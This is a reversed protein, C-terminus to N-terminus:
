VRLNYAVSRSGLGQVSVSGKVGSLARSGVSARLGVSLGQGWQSGKVGSLARSGM